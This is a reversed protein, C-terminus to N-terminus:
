FRELIYSFLYVLVYVHGGHLSLKANFKKESTTQMFFFFCISNNKAKEFGCNQTAFSVICKKAFSQMCISFMHMCGHLLNFVIKRKLFDSNV